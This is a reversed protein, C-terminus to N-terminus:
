SNYLHLYHKDMYSNFFKGSKFIGDQIDRFKQKLYYNHHFFLVFGIGSLTFCIFLHIRLTQIRLRKTSNHTPPRHIPIFELATRSENFRVSAVSLCGLSFRQVSTMSKYLLVFEYPHTCRIHTKASANPSRRTHQSQSSM